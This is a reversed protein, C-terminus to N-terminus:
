EEDFALDQNRQHDAPLIPMCALWTSLGLHLISFEPTKDRLLCDDVRIPLIQFSFGTSRSGLMLM